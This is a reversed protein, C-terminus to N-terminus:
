QAKGEKIHKVALLTNEFLHPILDDPMDLETIIHANLITLEALIEAGLGKTKIKCWNRKVNANIM